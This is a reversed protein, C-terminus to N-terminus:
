TTLVIKGIHESSEMLAHAQAAQTLPFTQHILVRVQGSSLLPWVHKRLKNAVDSKFATDRGRLTSGTINLRKLMVPAFNVEVKPGGLFGIFVLRGEPAMAKINRPIYDGGVMDLVVDVGGDTQSKVVEVFDEERYNIARYAGLEACIRCKEDTGATAFVQAGFASALQIATTGIGSSGGHVLFREGRKLAGRDFVNSYVTFFTEPLAGAAVDGFDQPYPLCQGVPAVCYEAYGGGAVLATVRAGIEPAQVDPGQAVVDGAIELGPIDPAGKPPPYGGQRQLVDPRNIGAAKVAILVEGPGPQPVPRTEPQLVEPAGAETIAIATMTEPLSPAM